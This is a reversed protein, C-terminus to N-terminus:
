EMAATGPATEYWHVTGAPAVMCPADLPVLMLTNISLLKACVLWYKRTLETDASPQTLGALEKSTNFFIGPIGVATLPGVFAQGNM